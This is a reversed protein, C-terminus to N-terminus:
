IMRLAFEPCAAVCYGCNVCKDHKMVAKNGDSVVIADAGCVEVCKGCGKCIAAFVFISKSDKATTELYGAIDRGSFYDVNAKVEDETIMGVSIAARGRSISNAYEMAGIYDNVLNGGALVKMLMVGKKATFCSEIAEEMEALSGRMIGLGLKNILAFVIDIDPHRAANGIVDVAHASIGTHGIIGKKKMDVLCRLAEAREAFINESCRPAHIFFIDIYDTDLAKLAGKVAVEMNRYSEAVSKTALVPRIGTEKVALRIPEYTGYMQATDFFTIGSKLALSMVAASEDVPKNAQVPGIPLAGFCLETVELGTNGLVVKKM